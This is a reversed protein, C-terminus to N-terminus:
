AAPHAPEMRVRTKAVIGSPNFLVIFENDGLNGKGLLLFQALKTMNVSGNGKFKYVWVEYGSDFQINRTDGFQAIVEARTKGVISAQQPDGKLTTTMMAGAPGICATLQLCLAAMAGIHIFFKM